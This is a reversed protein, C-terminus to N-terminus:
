KLEGKVTGCKPCMYLSVSNHNINDTEFDYTSNGYLSYGINIFDEAGSHIEKISYRNCIDDSPTVTAIFTYGCVCSRNISIENDIYELNDDQSKNSGNAELNRRSFLKKLNM